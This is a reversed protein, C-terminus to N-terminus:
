RWNFLREETIIKSTKGKSTGGLLNLLKDGETGSKNALKYHPQVDKIDYKDRLGKGLKAIATEQVPTLDEWKGDIYKGTAEIGISNNNSKPGAHWMKNEPTGIQHVMGKRDVTFHAGLGQTLARSDTPTHFGHGATRHTVIKNPVQTGHYLEPIDYTQINDLGFTSAYNSDKPTLLQSSVTAATNGTFAGKAEVKVPEVGISAELGDTFAGIFSKSPKQKRSAKELGEDLTADLGQALGGMASGIGM